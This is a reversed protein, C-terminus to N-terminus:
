SRKPDNAVLRDVAPQRPIDAKGAFASMLGPAARMDLLIPMWMPLIPARNLSAKPGHAVAGSILTGIGQEKFFKGQYANSFERNWQVPFETAGPRNLSSVLGIRVPDDGSTFVVPIKTTATKAARAAPPGGAFIVEMQLSVLDGALAPVEMSQSNLYGFHRRCHSSAHSIPKPFHAIHHIHQLRPLCGISTNNRCGTM